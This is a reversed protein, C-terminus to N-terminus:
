GKSAVQTVGDDFNEPNSNKCKINNLNCKYCLRSTKTNPRFIEGCRICVKKFIISNIRGM